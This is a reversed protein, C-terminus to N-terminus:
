VLRGVEIRENEGDLGFRSRSAQRPPVLTLAPKPAAGGGASTWLGAAVSEIMRRHVEDSIHLKFARKKKVRSKHGNRIVGLPKEELPISTVFFNAPPMREAGLQRFFDDYDRQFSESDPDPNFSQNAASVGALARIGWANAIGQLVAVLLAPPAVERFAKTAAYIQGYCGRVGQIRSILLVEGHQANVVSGPVITFQLHFVANGDVNLCLLLEGELSASKPASLTVAYQTDQESMEFVTVESEVIQRLIPSPVLTQLRTYHHLLAAARASVSLERVLFNTTLHKFPIRPDVSHLARFAPFKLTRYIRVQQFINTAGGYLTSFLRPRLWYQRERAIQVLASFHM